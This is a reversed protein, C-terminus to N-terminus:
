IDFSYIKNNIYKDIIIHLYSYIFLTFVTINILIIYLIKLNINYKM